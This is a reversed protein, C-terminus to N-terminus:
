HVTTPAKIEARLASLGKAPQVRDGSLVEDLRRENEPLLGRDAEPHWLHLVGTGWRGDKRRVGARILRVFLDSDERGWGAFGSDFGDVAILDSRWIGINAGRAGRWIRPYLKRLPGLPLSFLPAVRNINRSLYEAQWRSINWQEATLQERLIRQTLESSLLVRNGTVFWGREALARHAVIFNSRVLCDGDVFLCYEGAAALIARNRIEALRFGEDPHWVHVLRRGIRGKWGDVVAATDPRSGDDAVLVEFEADSQRALSRLVADLADPRNYTAVIVSILDSM